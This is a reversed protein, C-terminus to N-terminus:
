CPLDRRGFRIGSTEPVACRGTSAATHQGRPCCRELQYSPLLRSVHPWHKVDDDAVARHHIPRTARTEKSVDADLGAAHARNTLELVDLCSVNEVGTAQNDRGAKDINVAM